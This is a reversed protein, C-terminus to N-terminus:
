EGRMKKVAIISWILTFFVCLWAFFDGTRVYLSRLPSKYVGAELTLKEFIKGKKIVKGWPDVFGSIGTNAARVLWVRNEVSRMCAMDFHQYPASTRGFWADNTLNVLFEAGRKVFRRCLDPFIVEFCIVVAFHNDQVKFTTFDNGRLFSGLNGLSKGIWEFPFYEGFPVLHIKDYFGIVDGTPSFLLASNYLGEKKLNYRPCGLLLHSDLQRALESLVFFIQGEGPFIAATCATEPWIILKKDTPSLRLSTQGYDALIKYSNGIDRKIDQPVNEQILGIELRNVADHVLKQSGLRFVGYGLVLGTSLILASGKFIIQLGLRQGSKYEGYLAILDTLGANVFVIFFSIGYVGALDAFQVIHLSKAQSYGLLGWPFGTLFHSRLFELAVWIAPALICFPVHIRRYAFGLISCFSGFYLGLYLCLLILLIQSLILPLGGFRIMTGALWYLLGYFFVIGALWGSLFRNKVKNCRLLWLLPIMSVWALLSIGPLPFISILLFGTLVSCIINNYKGAWEKIM